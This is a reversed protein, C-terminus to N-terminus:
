GGQHFKAYDSNVTSTFQQPTQKGAMLERYRNETGGAREYKVDGEALGNRAVFERLVFAAGTTLADVSVAQGKLDAFSKVAPQAVVSLYGGDGGMFVVLDPNDPVKAEGQGEQYAIVNDMLALAIDNRGDFLSTVLFGSNPTYSVQMAIGNAAFYGQRQAAWLPLNWGGDFSIVRVPALPAPAPQAAAFTCFGALVACAASMFARLAM